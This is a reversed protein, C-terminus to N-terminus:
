VRVPQSVTDANLPLPCIFQQLVHLFQGSSISANLLLSHGGQVQMVIGNLTNLSEDDEHVRVLSILLVYIMDPLYEETWLPSGYFVNRRCFSCQYLVDSM